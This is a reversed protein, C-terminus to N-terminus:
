LNKYYIYMHPYQLFNSSNQEINHGNPGNVWITWQCTLPQIDHGNRCLMPTEGTFRIALYGPSNQLLVVSLEKWEVDSMRKSLSRKSERSPDETRGCRLVRLQSSMVSLM